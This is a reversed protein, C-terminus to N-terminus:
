FGKEENAYLQYLKDLLAMLISDYVSVYLRCVEENPAGLSCLIRNVDNIKAKSLEVFIFGTVMNGKALTFAKTASSLISGYSRM